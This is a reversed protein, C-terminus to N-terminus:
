ITEPKGKQAEQTSVYPKFLRLVARASGERERYRRLWRRVRRLNGESVYKRRHRIVRADRDWEDYRLYWYPGHRLDWQCRCRPQGCRVFERALFLRDLDHRAIQPCRFLRKAGPRSDSV